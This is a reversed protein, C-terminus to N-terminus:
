VGHRESNAKNRLFTEYLDCFLLESSLCKSIINTLSDVADMKKKIVYDEDTYGLFFGDPFICYEDNLENDDDDNNSDPHILRLSVDNENDLYVYYSKYRDTDIYSYSTKIIM